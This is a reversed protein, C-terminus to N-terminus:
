GVLTYRVFKELGMAKGLQAVRIHELHSRVLALLNGEPQEKDVRDTVYFELVRRGITELRENTPVSGHKYSKHTFTQTLLSDSLDLGLRTAIERMDSGDRTVSENPSATPPSSASPLVSLLSHLSSITHLYSIDPVSPPVRPKRLTVSASFLLASARHM